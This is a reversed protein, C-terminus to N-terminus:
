RWRRTGCGWLQVCEAVSAVHPTLEDQYLFLLDVDSHISLERRAYGGVALVCLRAQGEGGGGFYIEEALVFLRRVLGDMLDSRAENLQRGSGGSRHLQELHARAQVLYERVVSSVGHADRLREGSPALYDDISPADTV